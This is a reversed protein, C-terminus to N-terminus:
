RSIKSRSSFICLVLNGQPNLSIGLRIRPVKVTVGRKTGDCGWGCRDM